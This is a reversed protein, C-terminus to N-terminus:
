IAFREYRLASIDVCPKLGQALESMIKGIVPGTCFGHGCLGAALLLGEAEQVTGLVAVRDRTMDVYGAWSRLIKYGGLFDMDKRLYHAISPLTNVQNKEVHDDRYFTEMGADAGFVFSGHRTQHGYYDHEGFSEMMMDFKKPARETVMVEILQKQIPIDLQITNLLERSHYGAALLIHGGEYINGAETVVRSVRGKTRVLKVAKENCIFEAGLERAKRYFALTTVLPNAHGDSPCWVACTIDDAIYPNIERAERGDLQYVELGLKTNLAVIEQARRLHAETRGICLRGAQQYEIDVGLEEALGPWIHKVAYMALPLERNDRSSQRVGGGNRSSGGNGIISGAELVICSLGAKSMYYAAANGVIGSGIIIVDAKMDGAAGKRFYM